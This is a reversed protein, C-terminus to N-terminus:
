DTVTRDVMVLASGNWSYETYTIAAQASVTIPVIAFMGLVMVLSLLISIAKKMKQM